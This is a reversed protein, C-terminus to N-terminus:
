LDGIIKVFHERASLLLPIDRPVGPSVVITHIKQFFHDDFPGYFIDHTPFLETVRDPSSSSKKQYTNVFIYYINRTQLFKAVSIGTIGTGLIAIVKSIHQELKM